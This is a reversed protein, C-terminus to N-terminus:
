KYEDKNRDFIIKGKKYLKYGIKMLSAHAKIHKPYITVFLNTKNNNLRNGDLHHIIDNKTLARNLIKSIILRHESVYGAKGSNPHEPFYIYNYGNNRKQGKWKPHKEKKHSKQERVIFDDQRTKINHYKFWRKVTNIGLGTERRIQRLSKKQKLYQNKCWKKNNIKDCNIKM